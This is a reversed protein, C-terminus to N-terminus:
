ISFRSLGGQAGQGGPPLVGHLSHHQLRLKAEGLYIMVVSLLPSLCTKGLCDSEDDGDEDSDDEGDAESDDDSDDYGDDDEIDEGEQEDLGGINM